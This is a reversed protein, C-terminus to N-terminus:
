NDPVEREGRGYSKKWKKLVFENDEVILMRNPM